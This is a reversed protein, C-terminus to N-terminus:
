PRPINFEEPSKQAFGADYLTWSFVSDLQKQLSKVKDGHLGFLKFGMNKAVDVVEKSKMAKDFAAHYAAKIDEPTDNPLAIGVWQMIIPLKKFDPYFDAISPIHGYGELDAGEREIIALPRLKKALIYERQEALATLVCDVENSLAAVQSPHSGEYPLRHFKVGAAEQVQILKLSWVSGAQSAAAKITKKKAADILDQFTKYPSSAPVSIVGPSGMIMFLDWVSSPKDFVGLVAVGHVTESVGLITYGDRKQNWVHNAAVGGSGGLMNVVQFPVGMEKQLAQAIARNSLDTAGGAGAWCVITVPRTPKWTAASAIGFAALILDVCIFLGFVVKQNVSRFM